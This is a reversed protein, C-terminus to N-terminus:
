SVKSVLLLNVVIFIIVQLSCNTSLQSLVHISMNGKYITGVLFFYVNYLIDFCLALNIYGLVVIALVLKETDLIM